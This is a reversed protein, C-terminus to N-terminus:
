FLSGGPTNSRATCEALTKAVTSKGIGAISYLIYTFQSSNESSTWSMIDEILKSRTGEFCSTRHTNEYSDYAAATVVNLRFSIQILSATVSHPVRVGVRAPMCSISCNTMSPSIRFYRLIEDARPLLSKRSRRPFRFAFPHQSPHRSLEEDNRRGGDTEDQITFM